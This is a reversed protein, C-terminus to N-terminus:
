KAVASSNKLGKEEDALFEGLPGSARLMRGAPGDFQVAEALSIPAATPKHSDRM